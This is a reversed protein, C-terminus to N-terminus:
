KVPLDFSLTMTNNEESEEGISNDPDIVIRLVLKRAKSSVGPIEQTLADAGEPRYERSEDVIKNESKGDISDFIQTKAAIVEAGSTKFFLNV